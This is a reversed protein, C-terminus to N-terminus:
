SASTVRHAHLAAYYPQCADALEALRGDLHVERPRYPAFGSSAEVNAYWVRAWVGDTARPGTPWSLMAPDFPVELRECLRRLMGPPDRLLDRADLVAPIRGTRARTREFLALQQALGTDPLAADPLKTALSAVMARPERILFAHELRDLWGREIVPLLHHAMHKQYHITRGGPIPGTLEEAVRRWDVEGAAIIEERMPHVRGSAHLYHAYLPEDCVVTDPRNGWSRLLATSVNRPGSWMAIHRPDSM